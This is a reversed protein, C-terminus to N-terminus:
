VEKMGGEMLPDILSKRDVLDFIRQAALKAKERNVAGEAALALGYMSFLLGFMAILFDRFSFDDPLRNLVWGGFWFMIAFGWMQCFQGLGGGAGKILNTRLPQPDAALLASSYQSLRLEQLTMSAVTRINSLTEIVIGAPSGEEIKEVDGEDEGMYMAMEMEAGFALFPLIGLTLLAFPWMFIFAVVVGVFASSLNLVLTRIPEGAFAHLLAADDALRSTLSNPSRLDFWGVEQRMLSTFAADRVRKNMRESAVGFGWFLLAFGVLTTVITALYGYFIQFSRNRMWDATDDFYAPCDVFEDPVPPCPEVVTYLVDIMYAFIFGWSPFILGALIGGIGGVIFYYTDGSALLRARKSNLKEAEKDVELDADPDEARDSKSSDPVDEVEEEAEVNDTNADDISVGHLDQMAHLKAYRGQKAILEDHSGIERVRGKDIVAIRDANRITSLRHAIVVGAVLSCGYGSSTWCNM